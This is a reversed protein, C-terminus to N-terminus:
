DEPIVESEEIRNGAARHRDLLSEQGLEDWSEQEIHGQYRRRGKHWHYVNFGTPLGTQWHLTQQIEILPYRAKSPAPLWVKYLKVKVPPQNGPEERWGEIHDDLGKM